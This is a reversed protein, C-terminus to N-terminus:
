SAGQNATKTVVMVVTMHDYLIAAENGGGSGQFPNQRSVHVITRSRRRWRPCSWPRPAHAMVVASKSRPEHTPVQVTACGHLHKLDHFSERVAPAALGRGYDLPGSPRLAPMSIERISRGYRDTPVLPGIERVSRDAGACWSRPVLRDTSAYWAIPVSIDIARGSRDTGSGIHIERSRHTSTGYRDTPVLKDIARALRSQLCYVDPASISGSGIAARNAHISASPNRCIRASLIMSDLSAVDEHRPHNVMIQSSTSVRYRKPM